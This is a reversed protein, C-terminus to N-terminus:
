GKLPEMTCDVKIKAIEIAFDILLVKFEAVAQIKGAKVTVTGASEIDKTIGHITLKGKVKANYVGDKVYDIENNNVLEGKFEAKPFKTSEVYNENFHEEMLAKEFVFAKILVAFQIAGTKTDIVSTVTKNIAEVTEAEGSANFTITGSKTFYRQASLSFSGFTLAALVIIKSTKM